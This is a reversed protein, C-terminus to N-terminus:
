RRRYVYSNRSTYMGFPWRRSTRFFYTMLPHMLHANKAIGVYKSDVCGAFCDQQHNNMQKGFGSFRSGSARAATIVVSGLLLRNALYESEERKCLFQSLADALRRYPM